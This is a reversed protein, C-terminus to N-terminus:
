LHDWQRYPLSLTLKGQSIKISLEWVTAASVLRENVPEQIAVSARVSLRHPEDMAWILSHTDVLLRV